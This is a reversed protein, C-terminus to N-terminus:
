VEWFVNVCPMRKRPGIHPESCTSAVQQQKEHAIRGTNGTTIGFSIPPHKGM